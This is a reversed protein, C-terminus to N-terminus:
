SRYIFRIIKSLNSEKLYQWLDGFLIASQKLHIKLKNKKKDLNFMLLETNQNGKAAFDEEIM